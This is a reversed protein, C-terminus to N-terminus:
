SEQALEFDPGMPEDAKRQDKVKTIKNLIDQHGEAKQEQQQIIHRRSYIHKNGM